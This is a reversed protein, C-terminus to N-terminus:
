RKNIDERNPTVLMSVYDSFKGPKGHLATLVMDSTTASGEGEGQSVGSALRRGEEGIDVAKCPAAM